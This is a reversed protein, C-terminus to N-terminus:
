GPMADAFVRLDGRGAHMSWLTEALVDPATRPNGPEIAGPVILQGVHIGEPALVDHLMAAYASEAAFATSTGAVQPNPRLASGGNVLLVTGRGLARMGPLVHQVATAPGLVSLELAALLDARSTELVPRLSARRPIPSLQLVEVPGLERAAADLAGTVAEPDRIDAAFGRAAHGAASLGAALGDLKAQDRALLAISLGGAAFRRAVAAGLGPGAGLLALTTM